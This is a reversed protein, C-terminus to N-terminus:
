PENRSIKVVLVKKTEEGVYVDRGLRDPFIMLVHEEDALVWTNTRQSEPIKRDILYRSVKKRHGTEDLIFWDGPRAKRLHVQGKMKGCDLCKTYDKKPIEETEGTWERICFDVKGLHTECSMGSRVVYSVLEESEDPAEGPNLCFTKGMGSEPNSSKRMGSGPHSPRGIWMRQYSVRGELGGPLDYKKEGRDGAAHCLNEYVERSFDKGAGFRQCIDAIVAVQVVPHLEQFSPLDLAYGSLEETLHEEEYKGAIEEVLNQYARAKESLAALHEVTKRNLHEKMGPILEQRIYNRSYRLDANSADVVYALHHIEVYAYVEETTLFLLPRIIPDRKPEMGSLGSIGTGRAMRFLLTEAQDNMTHALVIKHAGMEQAKERLAQHRLIRAGEEVSCKNERVYVPVDVCSSTFPVHYREALSKVFAEDRDSEEGRIGHNVHCIVLPNPMQCMLDLLCVSDKGGSIGLLLTEEPSFLQNKECYEKMRTLVDEM